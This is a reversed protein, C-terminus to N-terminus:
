IGGILGAKRNFNDIMYEVNRLFVESILLRGCICDLQKGESKEYGGVGGDDKGIEIEPRSVVRCRGLIGTLYIEINKKNNDKRFNELCGRESFKNLTINM